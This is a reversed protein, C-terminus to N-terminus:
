EIDPVINRTDIFMVVLVGFTSYLMVMVTLQIVSERQGGPGV